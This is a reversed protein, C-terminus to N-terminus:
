KPVTKLTIINENKLVESLSLCNLLYIIHSKILNTNFVSLILM